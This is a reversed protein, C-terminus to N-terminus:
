LDPSSAHSAEMSSKSSPSRGDVEEEGGWAFFYVLAGLAAPFVITVIRFIAVAGVTTDTDLQALSTLFGVMSAETVGVGGPIPVIRGLMTPLIVAVFLTPYSVSLDFGQLTLYLIAIYIILTAVTLLFCALVIQRTFVQPIADLFRQWQEEYKFRVALKEAQSALWQRAPPVILLLAVVGLVSLIIIVPLRAAPFWLAAVLASVLFIAQDWGSHVAVPVSGESIPIGMQKLLAARAAIGGPLLTAAQGAIYAKYMALKPLNPAFPTILIAFRAAKLLFYVLALVLMIPMFVYQFSQLARWVEAGNVYKVTAWVLGILIVAHLGYKLYKSKNEM